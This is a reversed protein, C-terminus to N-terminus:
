RGSLRISSFQRDPESAIKPANFVGADNTVLVTKVAKQAHTLAVTVGPIVAATNDKVVGYIRATHEQALASSTSSLGLLLFASGLLFCLFLPSAKLSLM